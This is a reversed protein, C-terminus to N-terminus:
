LGSTAPEFGAGAVSQCTRSFLGDGRATVRAIAIADGLDSKGRSPSKKRERHAVFAPVERVDEGAHLLFRAVGAGYSGSSMPRGRLESDTSPSFAVGDPQADRLLAELLAAAEQNGEHETM